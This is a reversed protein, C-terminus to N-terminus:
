FTLGSAGAMKRLEEQQVGAQRAANEYEKSNPIVGCINGYRVFSFKKGAFEDDRPGKNRDNESRKHWAHPWENANLINKIVWRMKGDKVFPVPASVCMLTTPTHYESLHFRALPPPTHTWSRCNTSTSTNCFSLSTTKKPKWDFAWRSNFLSHPRAAVPNPPPPRHKLVERNRGQESRGDLPVAVFPSM